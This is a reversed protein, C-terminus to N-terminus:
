KQPKQLKGDVYLGAPQWKWLTDAQKDPPLNQYHVIDTKRRFEMNDANERLWDFYKPDQVYIEQLTKGKYKGFPIPTERMAKKKPRSVVKITGNDLLEQYRKTMGPSLEKQM